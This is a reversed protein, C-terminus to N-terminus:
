NSGFSVTKRVEKEQLQKEVKTSLNFVDHYSIFPQLTVMDHIEKRLGHLYRAITQEEPEVVGFKLMLHDLEETYDAVTKDGQVFGHLQLFAEQLYREPLFKKRLEKVMKEWTIIKQKDERARKMKLQEWWISAHKKLKIAVIKVKEKEPVDQYEFVREVTNLWYIFENPQIRGEYVSIDTKLDFARRFQQNRRTYNQHLAEEDSSVLTHNDHFPNFEADDDGFTEDDSGRYSDDRNDGTAEVHALREQLQQV